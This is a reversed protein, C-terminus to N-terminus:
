EEVFELRFVVRRSAAMDVSGDEKLVPKDYSHGEATIYPKLDPNVSICYDKVANARKESLKQNYEHTGQTDTHGEVVIQKVSDKNEDSLVVSTYSEVFDDLTEKGEESLEYSDYEFLIDAPLTVDGTEKDVEGEIGNEDFLQTLTDYLESFDFPITYVKGTNKNIISVEGENYTISWDKVNFGGEKETSEETPAATPAETAASDDGSCSALITATCLLALLMSFLSLFLQKAKM